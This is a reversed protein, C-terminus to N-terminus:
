GNDKRPQMFTVNLVPPVLPAGDVGSHEHRQKDRWADGGHNKLYFEAARLNGALAQKVIQAGVRSVITAKGHAMEEAFHKRLTKEDIGIQQAIVAPEIGCSRFVLVMQRQEKTPQFAPQGRPPRPEGPRYKRRRSKAPALNMQDSM